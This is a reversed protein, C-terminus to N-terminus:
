VESVQEGACQSCLDAEVWYCGEPCGHADTCGCERCRAPLGIDLYRRVHDDSRNPYDGSEYSVDLGEDMELERLLSSFWAVVDPAGELRLKITSM